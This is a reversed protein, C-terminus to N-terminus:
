LRGTGEMNTVNPARVSFTNLVQSDRCGDRFVTVGKCHSEYAQWYIKYADGVSASHALNVTKSVANDVFKQFEAQVRVHWEPAIDQAVVFVKRLEVPVETMGRLSGNLMKELVMSEDIGYERLADLLVANQNIVVQRGLTRVYSLAFVPEIGSSCGAIISLSGTPAITLVNANRYMKRQRTYHLNPFTGRDQGLEESAAWATNRMRTMLKRVFDLCEESDYAIRMKFLADAFGMLGLGVKRNGKVMEEIESFPTATVSIVNDLFRISSRVLQGFRTFDFSKDEKVLKSLNISGLNCSEYPLLPQEGCPNTAEIVWDKRRTFINDQNIRDIFLVGPDGTKWASSVMMGFLDEALVERVVVGNRPNRLSWKSKNRVAEMFEDSVAVSLNFNKFEKGGDKCTIFEVIDPHDVNLVGMNAGRRRGGQKMVDSTIDFIRMFSIPGSAVGSTSKVADGQPRLRSFSYGVGGGSKQIIASKGVSDFISVTQDELPLVFCAALQPMATGANMMTPSNPLFEMNTMMSSFEKEVEVTNVELTASVAHEGSAVFKSVRRIMQVPTEELKGDSGRLLYRDALLIMAPPTLKLPDEVGKDGFVMRRVLRDNSRRDRYRIYATLVEKLSFEVLVEEVLDQIKEVTLKGEKQDREGIKSVVVDTVDSAVVDPGDFEVANMAKRIALEIKTRDFSVQRGDRKVVSWAEVIM